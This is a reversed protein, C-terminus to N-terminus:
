ANTRLRLWVERAKLLVFRRCVFLFRSSEGRGVDKDSLPFPLWPFTCASASYVNM